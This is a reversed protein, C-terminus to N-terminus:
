ADGEQSGRAGRLRSAPAPIRVMDYKGRFARLSDRLQLGAARTNAVLTQITMEEASAPATVFVVVYGTEM